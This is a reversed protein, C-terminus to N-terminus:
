KNFLVQPMVARALAPRGQLRQLYDKAHVYDDLLPGLLSISLLSIALMIDAATFDDGVIYRQGMLSRDVVSMACDLEENLAATIDPYSGTFRRIANIYPNLTAEPFHMWQLYVGRQPSGLPPAFRGNGYREVLYEAIAGSEGLVVGDDELTPFRGTPTSQAFIKNNAFPIFDVTKLLYDLGLEELLWRIRLSRTMPNYYLTIM